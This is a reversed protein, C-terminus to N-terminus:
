VLRDSTFRTHRILNSKAIEFCKSFQQLRKAVEPGTGMYRWLGFMRGATIPEQVQDVFKILRHLQTSARYISKTNFYNLDISLELINLKFSDWGCCEPDCTFAMSLICDLEFPIEIRRWGADKIFEKLEKRLLKKRDKNNM